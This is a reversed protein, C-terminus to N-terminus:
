RGAVMSQAVLDDATRYAHEAADPFSAAKAITSASYRLLREGFDVVMQYDGVAEARRVLDARLARLADDAADYLRRDADLRSKLDSM